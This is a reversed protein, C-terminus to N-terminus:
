YVMVNKIQYYHEINTIKLSKNVNGFRDYNQAKM